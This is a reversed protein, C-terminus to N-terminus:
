NQPHEEHPHSNRHTRTTERKNGIAKLTEFRDKALFIACKNESHCHVQETPPEE